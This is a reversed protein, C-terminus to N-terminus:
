LLYRFSPGYNEEGVASEGHVSATTGGDEEKSSSGHKEDLKKNEWVLLLRLALALFATFFTFAACISM